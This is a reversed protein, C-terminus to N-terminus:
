PVIVKIYGGASIKHTLTFTINLVQNDSYTQSSSNVPITQLFM